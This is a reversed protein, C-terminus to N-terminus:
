EIFEFSSVIQDVEFQVDISINATNPWDEGFEWLSLTFVLNDAEIEGGDLINLPEGYRVALVRTDQIWVMRPVVQGLFIAEGMQELSETRNIFINTDESRHKVGIIFELDGQKLSIFPEGAEEMIEWTDPYHFSFGHEENVYTAWGEYADVEKGDVELRNVQIQCGNVDPVGCILQGSVRITQGTDRRNELEEKFIPWGNEAIYSTIGYWIPHDGDLVFYQSFQAGPENSYIKGEWGEIPEPDTIAIGTRLRTALLQCGGYDILDCRLTGWFNAYKGPEEHDRLAVIEAEISEDAGEIGFEGVEGEPLIIVHDDFQAGEPESVVYGLWGVVPVGAELPEVLDEGEDEADTPEQEAISPTPSPLVLPETGKTDPTQPISKGCGTGAIFVLALTVLLAIKFRGLM